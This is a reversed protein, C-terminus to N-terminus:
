SKDGDGLEAGAEREIFLRALESFFEEAYWDEYCDYDDYDSSM